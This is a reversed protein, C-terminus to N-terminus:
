LSQTLFFLHMALIIFRWSSTSIKNILQLDMHLLIDITLLRLASLKFCLSGLAKKSYEFSISSIKHFYQHMGDLYFLEFYQDNKIIHNQIHKLISVPFFCGLNLSWHKHYYWYPCKPRQYMLNVRNLLNQFPFLNELSVFYNSVFSWEKHYIWKTTAMRNTKVNAKSLAARFPFSTNEIKTTKVLCQCELKKFFTKM